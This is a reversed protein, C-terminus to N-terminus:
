LSLQYLLAMCQYNVIHTSSLRCFTDNTRMSDSAALVDPIQNRPDNLACTLGALPVHGASLFRACFGWGGGYQQVKLLRRNWGADREMCIRDEDCLLGRMADLAFARQGNLWVVAGDDSGLALVACTRAPSHLYVHARLGHGGEM